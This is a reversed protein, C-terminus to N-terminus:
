RREQKRDAILLEPNEYINGVIEANTDNPGSLHWFKGEAYAPYLIFMPAGENRWRVEVVRRSGESWAELIDGEYIEKSNKDKLGTFQMLVVEDPHTDLPFELVIPAWEMITNGEVDQSHGLDGHTAFFMEKEKKNWARFKIDRMYYRLEIM